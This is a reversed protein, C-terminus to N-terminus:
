FALLLLIEGDPLVLSNLQAEQDPFRVHCPQSCKANPRRRDGEDASDSVAFENFVPANLARIL